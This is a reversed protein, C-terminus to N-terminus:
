GCGEAGFLNREDARCHNIRGIAFHQRIGRYNDVPVLNLADRHAFLVSGREPFLDTADAFKNQRTVDVRVNVEKLRSIQERPRVAGIEVANARVLVFDRPDFRMEVVDERAVDAAAYGADNINASRHPVELDALLG